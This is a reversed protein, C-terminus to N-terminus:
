REANLWKQLGTLMHRQTTQGKQNVYVVILYAKIGDMLKKTWKGALPGSSYFGRQRMWTSMANFTMKGAVGDIVGKYTRQRYKLYAQLARKTQKGFIGDVVLRDWQAM